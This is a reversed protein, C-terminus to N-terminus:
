GLSLIARYQASNNDKNAEGPVPAVDVKITISTVFDVKGLNSFTVTKTEGPDIKDIVKTQTIPSKQDITLTVKVGVEQCDGSGEVSVAFGLDTGATITNEVSTSLVQGSPLAKTEVLRTGRFGSTTCGGTAINANGLLRNVVPTWYEPSGFNPADVVFQSSPVPVGTIGQARLETVSPVRFLDRYVVDSTVLRQAQSALQASATAVKKSGATRRFTDALGRL